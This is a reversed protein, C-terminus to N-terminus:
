LRSVWLRQARAADSPLPKYCRRWWWEHAKNERKTDPSWSRDCSPCWTQRRGCHRRSWRQLNEMTNTNPNPNPKPKHKPKPKPEDKASVMRCEWPSGTTVELPMMCAHTMCQCSIASEKLATHLTCYPCRSCLLMLEKQSLQTCVPLPRASRWVGALRGAPHIM